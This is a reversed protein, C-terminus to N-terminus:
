RGHKNFGVAAVMKTLGIAAVMGLLIAIGTMVGGMVLVIPWLNHESPVTALMIPM